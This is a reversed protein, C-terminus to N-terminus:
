RHLCFNTPYLIKELKKINIEKTLPLIKNKDFSDAPYTTYIKSPMQIKM